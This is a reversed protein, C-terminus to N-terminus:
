ARGYCCRCFERRQAGMAIRVAIERTRRAIALSVTGYLAVLTLSLTLLGFSGLLQALSREKVTRSQIQEDETTVGVLPLDKATKRMRDRISPLVADVTAETSVTILMQGRMYGPAQAFPICLADAPAYDRLGFKMNGVIGIIRRQAPEDPLHITTGIASAGASYKRGLSETVIAVAPASPGDRFTFDRALVFPIQLTPFFDPGIAGLIYTADPHRSTDTGSVILGKERRNRLISYRTLTASRVGPLASLNTLVDNSLQLEPQDNYGALTPFLWFLVLGKSQFGLDVQELNRLTRVLLGTLVPVLVSVSVQSILLLRTTRSDRVAGSLTAGAEKFAPTLTIDSTRVAPTLGFVLVAMASVCATFAMTDPALGEGFAAQHSPM